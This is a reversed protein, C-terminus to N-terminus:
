DKIETAGDVATRRESVVTKRWGSLPETFMLINATGKRKYKYDVVKPQGPKAPLPMRTAKFLQVPQEDRCIVPRNPDYALHYIELIDEM